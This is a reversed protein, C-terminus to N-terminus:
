GEIGEAMPHGVLFTIVLHQRMSRPSEAEQITFYLNRHYTVIVACFLLIQLKRILFLHGSNSCPPPHPLLLGM